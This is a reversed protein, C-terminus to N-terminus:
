VVSKRDLPVTIRGFVQSFFVMIYNACSHANVSYDIGHISMHGIYSHAFVVGVTLPFRLYDITQTLLANNGEKAMQKM